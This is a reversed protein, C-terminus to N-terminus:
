KLAELLNDRFTRAGEDFDDSEIDPFGIPQANIIKIIREREIEQGEKFAVTEHVGYSYGNVKLPKVNQKVREKSAHKQCVGNLHNTMQLCTKCHKLEFDKLALGASAEAEDQMAKQKLFELTPKIEKKTKTKMNKNEM